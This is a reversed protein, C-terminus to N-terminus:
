SRISPIRHGGKWFLAIRGLIPGHWSPKVSRGSPWCQWEKECGYLLGLINQFVPYRGSTQCFRGLYHRRFDLETNFESYSSRADPRHLKIMRVATVSFSRSVAPCRSAKLPGDPRNCLFQSNQSPFQMSDEHVDELFKHDVCPMFHSVIWIVHLSQISGIIRNFLL